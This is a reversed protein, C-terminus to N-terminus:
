CNRPRDEQLNHLFGFSSNAQSGPFHARELCLLQFCFAFLLQNLIHGFSSRPSETPKNTGVEHNPLPNWFFNTVGLFTHTDALATKSGLRREILFRMSVNRQCFNDGTTGFSRQTFNVVPIVSNADSVIWCAFGSKGMGISSSKDRDRNSSRPESCEQNQRNTVKEMKLTVYCASVLTCASGDRLLLYLLWRESGDREAM